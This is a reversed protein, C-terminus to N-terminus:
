VHFIDLLPARVTADHLPHPAPPVLKCPAKLVPFEMASPDVFKTKPSVVPLPFTSICGFAPPCAPSIRLSVPAPSIKAADADPVVTKSKALVPETVIFLVVEFSM